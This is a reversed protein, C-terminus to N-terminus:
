SRERTLLARDEGRATLGTLRRGFASCSQGAIGAGDPLCDNRGGSSAILIDSLSATM